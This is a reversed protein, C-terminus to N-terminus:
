LGLESHSGLRVLQLNQDTPKRYILILDPKIHCDRHDKWDGSLDHDCFKDSLKEDNALKYLAEIFRSEFMGCRKFDRKFANTWEIKRM